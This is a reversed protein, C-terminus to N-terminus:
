SSNWGVTLPLHQWEVWVVAAVRLGFAPLALWPGDGLQSASLQRTSVVGQRYCRCMSRRRALSLLAFTSMRQGGREYSFVTYQGHVDSLISWDM